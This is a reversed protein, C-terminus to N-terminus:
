LCIDSIELGVREVCCLLNYLVMRFGIIIMGEMELCVGIM